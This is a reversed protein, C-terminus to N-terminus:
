WGRTGVGSSTSLRAPDDGVGRQEEDSGESDMGFVGCESEEEDDPGCREKSKDDPSRKGENSKRETEGRFDEGEVGGVGKIETDRTESKCRVTEEEEDNDELENSDNECEGLDDELGGENEDLEDRENEELKLENDEFGLVREGELGENRGGKTKVENSTGLQVKECKEFEGECRGGESFDWLWGGLWGLDGLGGLLGGSGALTTDNVGLRGNCDELGSEEGKYGDECGGPGDGNAVNEGDSLENEGDRDCGSCGGSKTCDGSWNGGVALGNDCGAIEEPEREYRAESM